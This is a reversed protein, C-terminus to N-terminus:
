LKKFSKLFTGQGLNTTEIVQWGDLTLQNLKIQNRVFNLKNKFLSVFPITKNHHAQVPTQNKSGQPWSVKPKVRIDNGSNTGRCLPLRDSCPHLSRVEDLRERVLQPTRLGGPVWLQRPHKKIRRAFGRM